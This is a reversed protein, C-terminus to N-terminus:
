GRALQPLARALADVDSATTVLSPTVRICAGKAPGPWDDDGGGDGPDGAALDRGHAGETV